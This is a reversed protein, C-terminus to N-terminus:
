TGRDKWTVDYRACLGAFWPVHAALERALAEADAAYQATFSESTGYRTSQFLRRAINDAHQQTMTRLEADPPTAGDDLSM